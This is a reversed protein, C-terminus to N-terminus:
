EVNSMRCEVNTMGRVLPANLFVISRPGLIRIINLQIYTYLQIRRYGRDSIAVFAARHIAQWKSGSYQFSPITAGPWARRRVLRSGQMM